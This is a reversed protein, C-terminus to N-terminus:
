WGAGQVIKRHKSFKCFFVTSTVVYGRQPPSASHVLLGAKLIKLDIAFKDLNSLLSEPKVFKPMNIYIKLVYTAVATNLM